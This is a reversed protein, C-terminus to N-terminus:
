ADKGAAPAEAALAGTDGEAATGASEAAREEDVRQEIWHEQADVGATRVGKGACWPCELVKREGGLNSIVKGTGHCPICPESGPEEGREAGGGTDTTASAEASAPEREPEASDAQETAVGDEAADSEQDAM